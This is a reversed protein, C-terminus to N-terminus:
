TFCADKIEQRHTDSWYETIGAPGRRWTNIMLAPSINQVTHTWGRPLHLVEGAYMTFIIPTAKAYLPFKELDPETLSNLATSWELSGTREIYYLYKYDTPPFITWRKSGIIQYAFNDKSDIHGQTFTGPAGIRPSLPLPLPLPLPPLPFPYIPLPLLPIYQVAKYKLSSQKKGFLRHYM